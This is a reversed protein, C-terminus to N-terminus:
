GVNVWMVPRVGVDKWTVFGGSNDISGDKLVYSTVIPGIGPTRLFWGCTAKGDKEETSTYIGNALAYDTPICKRDENKPFFKECDSIGLIYLKDDTDNGGSTGYEKNDFTLVHSTIISAQESATFAASLFEGNLWARLLSTEWTVPILYGDDDSDAAGYAVGDLVYKSILFAKGNDIDLVIWEIPEAGNSTDNDQEYKGFTVTNGVAIEGKIAAKATGSSDSNKGSGSGGQNNGSDPTNTNAPKGCGALLAVALILALILSITKKM